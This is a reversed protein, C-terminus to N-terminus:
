PQCRDCTTSGLGFRSRAVHTLEGQANRVWYHDCDLAEGAREYEVCAARHAEREVETSCEPDPAFRRPDGGIFAGYNCWCEVGDNEDPRSFDSM